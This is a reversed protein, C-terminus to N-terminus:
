HDTGPQIPMDPGTILVMITGVITKFVSIFLSDFFHSTVLKKTRGTVNYINKKIIIFYFYLLNIVLLIYTFIQLLNIHTKM